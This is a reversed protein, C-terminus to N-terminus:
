KKDGCLIDPMRLISIPTEISTNLIIHMFISNCKDRCSMCTMVHATIDNWECRIHDIPQKRTM